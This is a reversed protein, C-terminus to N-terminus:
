HNPRERVIRAAREVEQRILEDGVPERLVIGGAQIYRPPLNNLALAYIDEIDIGNPEFSPFYKLVEPIIAKVRDENKNRVKDLNASRAVYYEDSM